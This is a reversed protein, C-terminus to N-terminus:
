SYAIMRGLVIAASWLALSAAAMVRATLPVEAGWAAIRSQWFSRFVLANAIALIVVAIKLAFVPQGVLTRADAAFV